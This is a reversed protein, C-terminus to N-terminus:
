PGGHGQRRNDTWTFVGPSNKAFMICLYDDENRDGRRLVEEFEPSALDVVDELTMLEFPPPCDGEPDPTAAASPPMGLVVLGLFAGLAFLSCRINARM